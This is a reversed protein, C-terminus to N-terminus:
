MRHSIYIITVGQTRLRRIIDFMSDVENVTLPASPEDMILIKCNKSVSKAIEVIQKHAPTMNEVIASPDINIHFQDFLKGTVENMKRFDVFRGYKSG